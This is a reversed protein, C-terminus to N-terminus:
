SSTKRIKNQRMKHRELVAIASPAPSAKETASFLSSRNPLRDDFIDQERAVAKESFWKKITEPQDAAKKLNEPVSMIAMGMGENEAAEIQVSMSDDLVDFNSGKKYQTYDTLLVRGVAHMIKISHVQMELMFIFPNYYM